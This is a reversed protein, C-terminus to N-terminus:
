VPRIRLPSLGASKGTWSAVLTSSYMLRFVALASPTLTGGVGLLDRRRPSRIAISAIDAIPVFRVHRTAGCMDAIPPLASMARQVACTQKQGLASM